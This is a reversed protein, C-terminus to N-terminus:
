PTPPAVSGGRVLRGKLAAREHPVTKEKKMQRILSRAAMAGVDGSPLTIHTFPPTSMTVWSPDGIIVVSLDEPIRYGADRLYRVGGLGPMHNALILASISGQSSLLGRTVRYCDEASTECGHVYEPRYLISAEELARAYGLHRDLLTLATSQWGIFGIHRHGARILEQTALYGADFNDMSFFDYEGECPLPREVIVCPNKFQLLTSETISSKESPVLLCGSFADSALASLILSERGPMDGSHFVVPMYGARCLEAEMGLIMQNFFTNEIQPLIIAVRQIVAPHERRRIPEYGLEKACSLIKERLQANVYRKKSGSLVYSVTPVTTECAAAIDKM